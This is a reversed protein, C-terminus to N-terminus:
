KDQSLEDIVTEMNDMIEDWLCLMQDIHEEPTRALVREWFDQVEEWNRRCQEAGAETVSVLTNRRCNPDIKRVIM